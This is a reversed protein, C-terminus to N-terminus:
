MSITRTSSCPANASIGTPLSFTSSVNNAPFYKFISTGAQLIYWCIFYIRWLRTESIKEALLRVQYETLSTPTKPSLSVSNDLSIARTFANTDMKDKLQQQYFTYNVGVFIALRNMSIWVSVFNFLLSKEQDICVFGNEKRIVYPSNSKYLSLDKFCSTHVISELRFLRNWM